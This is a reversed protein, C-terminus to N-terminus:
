AYNITYFQHLPYGKWIITFRRTPYITSPLPCITIGSPADISCPLPNAVGEIYYQPVLAPYPAFFKINMGTKKVPNPIGNLLGPLSVEIQRVSATDVNVQGNLPLQLIGVDTDVVASAYLFINYLPAVKFSRARYTWGINEILSYYKGVPLTLTEGQLDIQDYFTVPPYQAYQAYQYFGVAVQASQKPINFLITRNNNIPFLAKDYPKFVVNILTMPVDVSWQGNSDVVGSSYRQVGKITYYAVVSFSASPPPLPTMPRLGNLQPDMYTIVLLRQAFTVTMSQGSYVVKCTKAVDDKLIPDPCASNPACLGWDLLNYTGFDVQYIRGSVTYISGFCEEDRKKLIPLNLTVDSATIRVEMNKNFAYNTAQDLMPLTIIYDGVPLNTFNFFGNADSKTKYTKPPQLVTTISIAVDARISEVGSTFINDAQDDNYVYGSIGYSYAPFVPSLRTAVSVMVSTHVPVIDSKILCRILTSSIFGQCQRNGTPADVELYTRRDLVGNRPWFNSGIVEITHSGNGPVSPIFRYSTITPQMQFSAQLIPDIEAPYGSVSASIPQYTPTAPPVLCELFTNFPVCSLNTAGLTVYDISNRALGWGAGIILMPGGNAATVRSDNISSILPPYFTFTSAVSQRDVLLSVSSKGTLQGLKFTLLNDTFNSIPVIANNMQLAIGLPDVGFGDGHVLIFDNPDGGNPLIATIKPPEYNFLTSQINTLTYTSLQKGVTIQVSSYLGAGVPAACTVVTDTISLIPSCAIVSNITVRVDSWDRGYNGGKMTLVGGNSDAITPQVQTIYPADYSYYFKTRQLDFQGIDPQYITVPHNTDIGPPIICSLKNASILVCSVTNFSGIRIFMNSEFRTGEAVINNGGMTPGNVVSISTIIPGSDQCMSSPDFTNPDAVMVVDCLLSNFTAIAMGAYTDNIDGNYGAPKEIFYVELDGIAVRTTSAAAVSSELFYTMAVISMPSCVAFGPGFAQRCLTIVSGTTDRNIEDIFKIAQNDDQHRPQLLLTPIAMPTDDIVLWRDIAADLTQLEDESLSTIQTSKFYRTDMLLDINSTASTTSDSSVSNRLGSFVVVKMKTDEILYNNILLDTTAATNITADFKAALLEALSKINDAPKLDVVLALLQQWTLVDTATTRLTRGGKGDAFHTADMMDWTAAATRYFLQEQTPTVVDVPDMESYTVLDTMLPFNTFCPDFASTKGVIPPIQTYIKKSIALLMGNVWNPADTDIKFTITTADLAQSASFAHSVLMLYSLEDHCYPATRRIIFPPKVYSNVITADIVMQYPPLLAPNLSLASRFEAAAALNIFDANALLNFTRIAQYEAYGTTYLPPFVPAGGGVEAIRTYRAMARSNCQAGALFAPDFDCVAGIAPDIAQYHMSFTDDSVFNMVDPQLPLTPPLGVLSQEVGVSAPLVTTRIASFTATWDQAAALTTADLKKILRPIQPIHSGGIFDRVEVYVDNPWPNRAVKIPQSIVESYIIGDVPNPVLGNIDRSNYRNVMRNWQYSLGPHQICFVGGGRNGQGNHRNSDGVCFMNENANMANAGYAPYVPWGMKAHENSKGTHQYDDYTIHGNIDPPSATAFQTPTHIWGVNIIEENTDSQKMKIAYFFEIFMKRQFTAAVVHWIDVGEYSNVGYNAIVFRSLGVPRVANVAPFNARKRDITTKMFTYATSGGVMFAPSQWYCINLLNPTNRAANQCTLSIATASTVPLDGLAPVRATWGKLPALYDYLYPHLNQKAATWTTMDPIRSHRMLSGDNKIVYEAVNDLHAFRYCFFHQNYDPAGLFRVGSTIQYYSGGSFAPFHPNSHIVHIGHAVGLADEEWIVFGKLHGHAGATTSEKNTREGNNGRSGPQDNFFMYNYDNYQDYTSALPSFQPGPVNGIGDYRGMSGMTNDQYLYGNFNMNGHLKYTLSWEVPTNSNDALPLGLCSLGNNSFDIDDMSQVFGAGTDVSVFVKQIGETGPPKTCTVQGAVIDVNICAYAGVAVTVKTKDIGYNLGTLTIKVNRMKSGQIPAVSDIAPGIYNLPAPWVYEKGNAVLAIPYAGPRNPPIVCQIRIATQICNAPNVPIKNITVSNVVDLHTGDIAFNGGGLPITSTQSQAGFTPEYHTFTKDTAYTQGHIVFSIPLAGAAVGIPVTCTFQSFGVVPALNGCVLTGIQFEIIKALDSQTIGIPIAPFDQVSITISTTALLFGEAPAVPASIKPEVIKLVIKESAFTGISVTVDVDGVAHAAADVDVYVTTPTNALSMATTDETGVSIKDISNFNNGNITLKTVGKSMIYPPSIDTILPVFYTFMQTDPSTITMSTITAVLNFSKHDENPQLVFASTTCTFEKGDGTISGPTIACPSGGITVLSVDLLYLGTVKVLQGGTPLGADPQVTLIQPHYTTFKLNSQCDLGNITMKLDEEVYTGELLNSDATVCKIHTDDIPQVNTCPTTGITIVSAVANKDDFLYLGEIIIEKGAGTVIRDPTVKTLVPLQGSYLTVFVDVNNPHPYDPIQVIIESTKVSVVTAPVNDFLVVPTPEGGDDIKLNEGQLKLKKGGCTLIQMDFPDFSTISPVFFMRFTFSEHLLRKKSNSHPSDPATYSYINGVGNGAPGNYVFLAESGTDSTIKLIAVSPFNTGDILFATGGGSYSAM